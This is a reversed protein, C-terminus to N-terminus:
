GNSRYKVVTILVGTSLALAIKVALCKLCLGTNTPLTLLGKAKSVFILGPNFIAPLSLCVLM